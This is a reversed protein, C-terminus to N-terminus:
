VSSCHYCIASKLHFHGPLLKTTRTRKQHLFSCCDQVWGLIRENTSVNSHRYTHESGTLLPSKMIIIIIIIFSCYHAIFCHDANIFKCMSCRARTFIEYQFIKRGTLRPLTKFRVQELHTEMNMSGLRYHQVKGTPQTWTYLTTDANCM